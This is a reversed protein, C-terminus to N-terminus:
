ATSRNWLQPTKDVSNAKPVGRHSRRGSSPSRRHWLWALHHFHIRQILGEDVFEEGEVFSSRFAVVGPGLQDTSDYRICRTKPHLTHSDTENSYGSRKCEGIGHGDFAGVAPFAESCPDHSCGVSPCDLSSRSRHDQLNKSRVSWSTPQILTEPIELRVPIM